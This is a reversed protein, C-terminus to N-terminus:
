LNNVDYVDSRNNTHLRAMKAMDSAQYLCVFCTGPKIKTESYEAGGNRFIYNEAPNQKNFFQYLAAQAM